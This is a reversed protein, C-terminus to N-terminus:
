VLSVTKVEKLIQNHSKDSYFLMDAFKVRQEQCKLQNIKRLVYFIKQFHNM